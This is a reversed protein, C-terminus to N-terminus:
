WLMQLLCTQLLNLSIMHYRFLHFDTIKPKETVMHLGLGPSNFSPSYRVPRALFRLGM